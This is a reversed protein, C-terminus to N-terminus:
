SLPFISVLSTLITMRADQHWALVRCRNGRTDLIWVKGPGHFSMSIKCCLSLSVSTDSSTQRPWKPDRYSFQTFVVVIVIRLVSSLADSEQSFAPDADPKHVTFVDDLLLLRLPLLHLSPM